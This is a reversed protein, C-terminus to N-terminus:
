YLQFNSLKQFAPVPKPQDQHLLQNLIVIFRRLEARTVGALDLRTQTGEALARSGKVWAQRATAFTLQGGLALTDGDPRSIEVAEAPARMRTM